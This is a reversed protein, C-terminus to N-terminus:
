YNSYRRREVIPVGREDFGVIAHTAGPPLSGDPRPQAAEGRVVLGKVFDDSVKATWSNGSGAFQDPRAPNNLKIKSM